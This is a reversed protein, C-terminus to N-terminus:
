VHKKEPLHFRLDFKWFFNSQSGKKELKTNRSWSNGLNVVAWVGNFLNFEMGSNISRDHIHNQFGINYSGEIFAKLENSGAYVRTTFTLNNNNYKIKEQTDADTSDQKENSYNLGVLAQGSKGLPFAVTNWMRFKTFHVNSFLSDPSSYRMAIATEFKLKNWLEDKYRNRIEQISLGTSLHNTDNIMLSSKYDMFLTDVYKEMGSSQAINERSIITDKYQEKNRHLSDIFHIRTDLNGRLAKYADVIFKKNHLLATKDIWTIRLGAGLNRVSDGDNLKAGVSLKMDYLIRKANKKYDEISIKRMGILQIPSFEVSFDKPIFVSNSSFFNSYVLSFLEQTNSPRMIKDDNKDLINFAPHEPISFDLGYNKALVSDDRTQARLTTAAFFSLALLIVKM